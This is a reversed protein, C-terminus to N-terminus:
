NILNRNNLFIYFSWLPMLGDHNFTHINILRSDHFEISDAHLLWLLVGFHPFYGGANAGFGFHSSIPAKNDPPRHIQSNLLAPLAGIVVPHRFHPWDLVFTSVLSRSLVEFLTCVRYWRKCRWSWSRFVEVPLNKASLTNENKRNSGVFQFCVESLQAGKLLFTCM